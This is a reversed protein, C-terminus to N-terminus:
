EGFHMIKKVDERHELRNDMEQRALAIQDETAAVTGTESVTAGGDVLGGIVIERTEGIERKHEGDLLEAKHENKDADHLMEVSGKIGMVGIAGDVARRRGSYPKEESDPAFIAGLALATNVTLGAFALGRKLIAKAGEWGAGDRAERSATKHEEYATLKNAPVFLEQGVLGQDPLRAKIEAALKEASAADEATLGQQSERVSQIVETAVLPNQDGSDELSVEAENGEPTETLQKM